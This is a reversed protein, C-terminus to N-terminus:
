YCTFLPTCLLIFSLSINVPLLSRYIAGSTPINGMNELTQVLARPSLLNHRSLGSGDDQVFSSANVGISSLIEKVAAIGKSQANGTSALDYNAGLSRLFCETMQNDSNQLTYNMIETFTYPSTVTAIQVFNSNTVCKGAKSSQVSVGAQSLYYNLVCRYREAPQLVSFSYSASAQNQSIQGELYIRADGLRYFTSFPQTIPTGVPVTVANNVVGICQNDVIDTFNYAVPGYDSNFILVGSGKM